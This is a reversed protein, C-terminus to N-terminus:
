TLRNLILQKIGPINEMGDGVQLRYSPIGQDMFLRPKGLKLVDKDDLYFVGEQEKDCVRIIEQAIDSNSLTELNNEKGREMFVIGDMKAEFITPYGDIARGYLSINNFSPLGSRFPEELTRVKGGKIFCYNDSLVCVGETKMLEAILTSKGV